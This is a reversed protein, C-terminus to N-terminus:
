RCARVIKPNVRNSEWERRCIYTRSIANVFLCLEVIVTTAFSDVQITMGQMTRSSVNNIIHFQLSVTAEVFDSVPVSAALRLERTGIAAGCISLCTITTLITVCDEKITLGDLAVFFADAVQFQVSTAVHPIVLVVTTGDRVPAARDSTVVQVSTETIVSIAFIDVEISM